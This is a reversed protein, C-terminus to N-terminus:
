TDNHQTDIQQTDCKRITISLAGIRLTTISLTMTGFTTAGSTAYECSKKLIIKEFSKLYFIKKSKFIQIFLVNKHITIIKLM